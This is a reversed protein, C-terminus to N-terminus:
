ARPAASAVLNKLRIFENSGLNVFVIAEGDSDKRWVLGKVLLPPQGDPAAIQLRLLTGESPASHRARLHLKGGFPNLGTIRGKQPRRGPVEVVVECEQEARPFRRSDPRRPARATRVKRVRRRPPSKRKM